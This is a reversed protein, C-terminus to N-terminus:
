QYWQNWFIESWITETKNSPLVKMGQSIMHLRQGGTFEKSRETWYGHRKRAMTTIKSQQNNKIVALLSFSFM